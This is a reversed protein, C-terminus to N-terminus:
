DQVIECTPSFVFSAFCSFYFDVLRLNEVPRLIKMMAFRFYVFSRRFDFCFVIWPPTAFSTKQLM